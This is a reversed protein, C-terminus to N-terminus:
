DDDYPMLRFLDFLNHTIFNPPEGRKRELLLLPTGTISDLRGSLQEFVVIRNQQHKRTVNRHNFRFGQGSKKVMM